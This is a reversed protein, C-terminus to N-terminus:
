DTRRLEIGRDITFWRGSRLRFFDTTKGTPYNQVVIWGPGFLNITRNENAPVGPLGTIRISGNALYRIKIDTVGGNRWTWNKDVGVTDVLETFYLARINRFINIGLSSTAQNSITRIQAVDKNINFIDKAREWVANGTQIAKNTLYNAAATSDGLYTDELKKDTNDYELYELERFGGVGDSIIVISDKTIKPQATAAISLLAFAALILYKM